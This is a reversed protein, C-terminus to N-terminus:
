EEKIKKLNFGSKTWALIGGSLNSVNSYNNKKLFSSAISTKFGSECYVIIQKDKPILNLNKELEGVYINHAKRIHGPKTWNSENRVDLVFINEDDLIKHLKESSITNTKELPEDSNTWTAFGKHLYGEINDYGLRILKKVVDELDFNFDDVIIIPHNYDLFYGAFMPIGEKWINLSGPIHGGAFSTPSRVDLIQAKKSVANKVEDVNLSQLHPINGLIPPGNKNYDEMKKFYPPIYHHESTKDSIFDQKSKSLTKNTKKEYGITTYEHDSIEGGCVSGAGHAPCIIVGDDLNLIKEHLSKYLKLAFDKKQKEGYLDIRGTDGAFLADGTFVMFVDDSIKKDRVTISISEDTHGPTELIGIKLLGLDFSDNEKVKKGYKFDLSKGHFIEANTRKQLEKSGIVYDENRHTEFIYKINLDNKKSVELYKEIDRRPDIVAAVGDSGIIYSNHALGETVIKEFLM